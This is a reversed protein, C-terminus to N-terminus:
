ADWSEDTILGSNIAVVEILEAFGLAFDGMSEYQYEYLAAVSMNNQAAIQAIAQEDLAFFSLTSLASELAQKFEIDLEPASLLPEAYTKSAVLFGESWPKCFELSFVSPLKYGLEFVQESIKHYLAMFLFLIDEDLENATGPIIQELWEHVDLPSPSCIVGFLYGESQALTMAQPQTDLFTSLQKAHLETFQPIQM